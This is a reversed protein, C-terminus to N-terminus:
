QSAEAIGAEDLARQLSKLYAHSTYTAGSIVDVQASQALLVESRLIAAAATSRNWSDANDHPLRLAMVNTILGATITVRIQVVGHAVTVIPGTTTLTRTDQWSPAARRAATAAASSAPRPGSKASLLAALAVATGVGAPIGRRLFNGM